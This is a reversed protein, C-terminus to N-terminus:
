WLWQALEAIGELCQGAIIIVCILEVLKM